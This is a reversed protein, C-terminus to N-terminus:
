RKRKCTLWAVIGGIAFSVLLITGPMSAFVSRWDSKVDQVSDTKKIQRGDNSAQLESYLRNRHFVRPNM